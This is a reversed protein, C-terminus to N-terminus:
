RGLMSACPRDGYRLEMSGEDLYKDRLPNHQPAEVDRAPRLALGDNGPESDGWLGISLIAVLQM